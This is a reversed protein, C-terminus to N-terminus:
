SVEKFLVQLVYAAAVKPAKNDWSERKKKKGFYVFCKSMNHDLWKGFKMEFLLKEVLVFFFLMLVLLDAINPPLLYPTKQQVSIMKFCVFQYKKIQHFLILGWVSIQKHWVKAAGKLSTKFLKKKQWSIRLPTQVM